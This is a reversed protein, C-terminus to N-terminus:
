WCCCFDIFDGELTELCEDSTQRICEKEEEDETIFM